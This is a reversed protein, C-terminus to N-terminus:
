QHIGIIRSIIIPVDQYYNPCTLGNTSAIANVNSSSVIKPKPGHPQLSLPILNTTGANVANNEVGTAVLFNM